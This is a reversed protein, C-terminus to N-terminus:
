DLPGRVVQTGLFYLCLFITPGKIGTARAGPTSGRKNIEEDCMVCKRHSLSLYELGHGQPIAWRVEVATLPSESVGGAGFSWLIFKMASKSSFIKVVMKVLM